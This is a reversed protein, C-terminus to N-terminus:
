GIRVFDGPLVRVDPDGAKLTSRVGKVDLKAYGNTNTIGSWAEYISAPADDNFAYFAISTEPGSSNLFHYHGTVPLTVTSGKYNTDLQGFLEGNTDNATTIKLICDAQKNTYTGALNM